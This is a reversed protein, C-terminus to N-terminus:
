YYNNPFASLSEAAVNYSHFRESAVSHSGLGHQLCKIGTAVRDELFAWGADGRSEADDERSRHGEEICAGTESSNNM